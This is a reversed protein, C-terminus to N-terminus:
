GEVVSGDKLHVLLTANRVDVSANPATWYYGNPFMTAHFLETGVTVDVATVDNSAVGFVWGPADSAYITGGAAPNTPGLTGPVIGGGSATIIAFGANAPLLYVPGSRPTTFVKMSRDQADVPLQTAFKTATEAAQPTLADETGRTHNIAAINRALDAFTGQAPTPLRPAASGHGTTALYLGGAIASIAAVVLASVIYSNRIQRFPPQTMAVGKIDSGTTVEESNM